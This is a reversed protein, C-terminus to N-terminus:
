PYNLGLALAFGEGVDLALGFFVANPQRIKDVRGDFRRWEAIFAGSSLGTEGVTKFRVGGAALEKSKVLRFRQGVPQVLFRDFSAQAVHRRQRFLAQALGLDYGDLIKFDRERAPVAAGENLHGRASALGEGGAVENIPEDFM